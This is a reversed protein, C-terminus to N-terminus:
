GAATPTTEEVKSVLYYIVPEIKAWVLSLRRLDDRSYNWADVHVHFGCSSNVIGGIERWISLVKKIEDFGECGFLKPSTLEMSKYERQEEVSMNRRVSGDDGVKWTKNRM